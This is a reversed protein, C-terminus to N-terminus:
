GALRRWWSRTDPKSPPLLVAFQDLRKAREEALAQAVALDTKLRENEAKLTELLESSISSLVPAEVNGGESQRSAYVRSLEAPDLQWGKEADKEGSVKGSKLAKLLTPRSVDFRKSAEMLSLKAM